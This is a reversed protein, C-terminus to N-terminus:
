RSVGSGRTGGGDDRLPPCGVWTRTRTRTRAADSNADSRLIGAAGIRGSEGWIQGRLRPNQRLLRMPNQIVRVLPELSVGQDLQENVYAIAQRIQENSVDEFDM